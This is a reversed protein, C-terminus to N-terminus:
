DPQYFNLDRTGKMKLKGIGIKDNDMWFRICKNRIFQVARIGEDIASFQKLKGYVKFEFVLMSIM